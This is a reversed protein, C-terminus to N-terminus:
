GSEKSDEGTAKLIDGIVSIAKMYAMPDSQYVVTTIIDEIKDREAELQAICELHYELRVFGGDKDTVMWTKGCPSLRHIDLNNM